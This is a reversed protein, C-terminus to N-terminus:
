SRAPARERASVAPPNDPAPPIADRLLPEDASAPQVSVDAVKAGERLRQIGEVVVLDGAQLDGQVLVIGSERRLIAADARRAAGDVVKWVFSGRRDWQVSLTPVALQQATDFNLTVNIAMGTKLAHRENALEAELRLTRTAADVRNDVGVIRGSFESGPLAQATAAIPQDPILRGAWREPVEFAVRVSATDELTTIETSSTVLDGLSLETMGTVGAFPANISRRELEIAATRVEIEALQAATEAESLAVATITKSKALTQARALADEAQKLSVRARDVAVQQEDDQLRLLVAGASVAQGPTFLVETVIGTVQPFLTVSRVAEATGLATITEGGADTEVPATIVNVVGGGSMLGPIRNGGGAPRGPAQGAAQAGAGAERGSSAERALGAMEPNQYLYWGAGAAAFLVLCLVAQKLLSM